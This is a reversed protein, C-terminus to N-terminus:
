RAAFSTPSMPIDATYPCRPRSRWGRSSFGRAAQRGCVYLGQQASMRENLMIGGRIARTGGLCLQPDAHGNQFGQLAAQGSIDGWPHSTSGLPCHFPSADARRYPACLMDHGVTYSIRWRIGAEEEAYPPSGTGSGSLWSAWACWNPALCVSRPVKAVRMALVLCSRPERHTSTWAATRTSTLMLSTVGSPKSSSGQRLPKSDSQRLARWAKSSPRSSRSRVTSMSLRFFAQVTNGKGWATRGDSGHGLACAALHCLNWKADVVACLPMSGRPRSTQRRELQPEQAPVQRRITKTVPCPATGGLNALLSQGAMEPDHAALEAHHQVLAPPYGAPVAGGGTDVVGREM